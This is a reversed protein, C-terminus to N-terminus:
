PQELKDRQSSWCAVNAERLDMRAAGAGAIELHEYMGRLEGAM